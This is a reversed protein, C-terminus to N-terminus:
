LDSTGAQTPSATCVVRERVEQCHWGERDARRFNSCFALDTVSAFRARGFSAAGARLHQCELPRISTCGDINLTRLKPLAFVSEPLAKLKSCGKLSLTELETLKQIEDPLREMLAFNLQLETLTTPLLQILEDVTAQQFAFSFSFRGNPVSLENISIRLAELCSTLASESGRNYETACRPLGGLAYHGHLLDNIRDFKPDTVPPSEDLPKGALKNLIHIKDAEKSAVANEVKIGFAKELLAVPFRAQRKAKLEAIKTADVEVRAPHLMPQRFKDAPLPADGDTIVVASTPVVVPDRESKPGRQGTKIYENESDMLGQADNDGHLACAMDYLKKESLSALLRKEVSVSVEYSCRCEPAGVFSWSITLFPSPRRVVALGCWIRTFVEGGEDLVSLTGVSLEMAKAFSSAAPDDPM